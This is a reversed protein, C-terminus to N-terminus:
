KFKAGVRGSQSLIEPLLPRGGFIMKAGITLGVWVSCVYIFGINLVYIDGYTTVYIDGYIDGYTTVYIM